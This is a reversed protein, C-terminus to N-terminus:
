KKAFVNKRCTYHRILPTIQYVSILRAGTLNEWKTGQTLFITNDNPDWRCHNTEELSRIIGQEIRHAATGGMQASGTLFPGVIEALYPNSFLHTDPPLPRKCVNSTRCVKDMRSSMTAWSTRVECIEPQFRGEQMQLTPTYTAEGSPITYYFHVHQMVLGAMESYHFSKRGFAFFLNQDSIIIECNTPEFLSRRTIYLDLMKFITELDVGELWSSPFEYSLFDRLHSPTKFFCPSRGAGRYLVMNKHLPERRYERLSRSIMM